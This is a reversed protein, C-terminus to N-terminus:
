MDLSYTACFHTYWVGFYYYYDLDFLLLTNFKIVCPRREITRNCCVCSILSRTNEIKKEKTDSCKLIM